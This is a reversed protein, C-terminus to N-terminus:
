LFISEFHQIRPNKEGEVILVSVADIRWSADWLEKEKIYVEAIRNIKRLKSATIQEEPLVVQEQSVKRTKVEVFVVGGYEDRVIIDIEGIRKGKGNCWNREIIKYGKKKLFKEAIREGDYGTSDRNLKFMKM